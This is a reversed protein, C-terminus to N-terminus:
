TKMWYPKYTGNAMKLLDLSSLFQKPHNVENPVWYGRTDLLQDINYGGAVLKQVLPEMDMMLEPYLGLQKMQCIESSFNIARRLKENNDIKSRVVTRALKVDPLLPSFYNQQSGSLGFEGDKLILLETMTPLVGDTQSVVVHNFLNSKGVKSRWTTYSVLNLDKDNEFEVGQIKPYEPSKTNRNELVKTARAAWTINALVHLKPSCGKVIEDQKMAPMTKVNPQMPNMNIKYGVQGTMVFITNSRNALTPIRGIMNNKMLGLKLHAPLQESSGLESNDILSDSAKTTFESLSDIGVVSFIPRKILINTKPDPFPTTIILKKNNIKADMATQCLKFFEEGSLAIKDTIIIRGNYFMDKDTIDDSDQILRNLSDTFANEETDYLLGKTFDGMRNMITTMIFILLLTKYCNPGAAIVIVPPAGGNLINEGHLGTIFTGCPIDFGCGINPMPRLPRNDIGFDFNYDSM